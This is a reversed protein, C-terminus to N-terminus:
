DAFIIYIHDTNFDLYIYTGIASLYFCGWIFNGGVAPYSLRGSDQM